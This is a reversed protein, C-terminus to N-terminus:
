PGGAVWKCLRSWRSRLQNEADPVTVNSREPPWVSSARTLSSSGPSLSTPDSAQTLPLMSGLFPRLQKETHFLWLSRTELPLPPGHHPVSSVHHGLALVGSAHTGAQCREGGLPRQCTSECRHPGTEQLTPTISAGGELLRLSFIVFM